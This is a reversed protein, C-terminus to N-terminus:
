IEGIERSHLSMCWPPKRHVQNGNNKTTSHDPHKNYENQVVPTPVFTVGTRIGLKGSDVFDKM